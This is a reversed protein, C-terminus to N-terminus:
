DYSSRQLRVFPISTPTRNIRCFTPSLTFKEGLFPLPQCFILLNRHSLLKHNNNVTDKHKCIRFVNCDLTCIHTVIKLIYESKQSHTKLLVSM